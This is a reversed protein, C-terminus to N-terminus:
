LSLEVRSDRRMWQMFDEEFKLMQEFEDVRTSIDFRLADESVILKEADAPSQVKSGTTAESPSKSNRVRKGNIRKSSRTSTASTASNPRVVM